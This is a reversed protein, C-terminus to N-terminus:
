RDEIELPNKDKIIRALDAGAALNIAQTEGCLKWFPSAEGWGSIAEDTNIACVCKRGRANGHRRNQVPGEAPHRSKFLDISTIRM